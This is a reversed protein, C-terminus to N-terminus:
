YDVSSKTNQQLFLCFFIVVIWDFNSRQIKSRLDEHWERASAREGDNLDDVNDYEDTFVEPSLQLKAFARTADRGAFLSYSGGLPM